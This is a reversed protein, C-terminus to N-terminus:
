YQSPTLSFAFSYESLHRIMMSQCGELYVFDMVHNFPILLLIARGIVYFGIPMGIPSFMNFFIILFEFCIDM